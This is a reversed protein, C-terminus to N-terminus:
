KQEPESYEAMASLGLPSVKLFLIVECQDQRDRTVGRQKVHGEFYHDRLLINM